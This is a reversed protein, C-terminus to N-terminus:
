VERDSINSEAQANRLALIKRLTEENRIIQNATRTTAESLAGADYHILFKLQYELNNM